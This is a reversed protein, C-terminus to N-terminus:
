SQEKFYIMEGILLLVRAVPVCRVRWQKKANLILINAYILRQYGCRSSIRLCYLEECRHDGYM